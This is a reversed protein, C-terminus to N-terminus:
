HSACGPNGSALPGVAVNPFRHRLYEAFANPDAPTVVVFRQRLALVVTRSSDTAFLRYRGLRKSYFLGNFSFLGGNGIVRISGKCATPEIWVRSLGALSVRTSSILRRVYLDTGEIAYGSVIFFLSGLLVLVPIMAVGVGFRHTFGSPTPIARYAAFAVALLVITCFASIVKLLTSWPAAPFHRRM